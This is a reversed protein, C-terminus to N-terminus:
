EYIPQNPATLVSHIDFILLKMQINNSKHILSIIMYTAM